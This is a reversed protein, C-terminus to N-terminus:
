ALKGPEIDLQSAIASADGGHGAIGGGPPITWDDRQSRTLHSWPAPSAGIFSEFSDPNQRCLALAWTRMAPTIHGGEVAADVRRTAEREALTATRDRREAMLEKVAEAPVYKEPDVKALKKIAALVADTGADPALKLAERIRAADLPAGTKDDDMTDEESALATLHLAPRHVLSAGRLRKVTGAGDHEFM